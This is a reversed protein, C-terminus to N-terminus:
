NFQYYLKNRAKQWLEFVENPIGAIKLIIKKGHKVLKGKLCYKNIAM